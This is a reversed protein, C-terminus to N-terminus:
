GNGKKFFFAHAFEVAQCDLYERSQGSIKTPGPHIPTGHRGSLVHADEPVDIEGAAPRERETIWLDDRM